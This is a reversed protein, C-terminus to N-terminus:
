ASRWKIFTLLKAEQFRVELHKNPVSKGFGPHWSGDQLTAVGGEILLDVRQGQPMEAIFHNANIKSVKIDPHFHWYAIASRFRGTLQDEVVLQQATAHWRRCHTVKGPLRRYGDHCAALRVEGDGKVLDVAFPRARRAVRFGAWVESSNEGDVAVTNHAPTSRQRHREADEGYQSIGSNVLFRQGFLSLECSLTDAHAHGPQYDPGVPAVDVLLRQRGSWDVVGFGSPQLIRAEMREIARDNPLRIDLQCAYAELDALTPAINFTADNFFSIEGDPHSLARLWDVGQSLKQEWLPAYRKLSALGSQKVLMLLDALDWLLTGQYMPSREYHAGDSLFQENVEAELLRLGKKLWREGDAGGLSVGAFVLAKANAFLHNALIHYELQHELAHAQLALSRLWEPKLDAEDLRSFFKVWNVIRLSLCYPEWGNGTMPPNGSIWGNVLACNLERRAGAGRSNLADQYHLNYLWLKSFSPSNWDDQLRASEGLFDYTVGDSTPSEQYSVEPWASVWGRLVPEVDQNLTRKSLRYYLQYFLQKVKLYRITNVLLLLRRM